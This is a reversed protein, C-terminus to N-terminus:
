TLLFEYYCIYRSDLGFYLTFWYVVDLCDKNSHSKLRALLPTSPRKQRWYFEEGVRQVEKDWDTGVMRVMNEKGVVFLGLSKALSM